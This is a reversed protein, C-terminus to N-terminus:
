CGKETERETAGIVRGAGIPAVVVPVEPTVEPAATANEWHAIILAVQAADAKPYLRTLTKYAEGADRVGYDLLRRVGVLVAETPPVLATVLGTM